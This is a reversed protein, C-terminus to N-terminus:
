VEKVGVKGVYALHGGLWGGILLLVVGVISLGYGISSTGDQQRVFFDIAFLVTVALNVLMHKTATAKVEPPLPATFYDVFGFLAALLAGVIGFGILAESFGVWMPAHTVLYIIDSVLSSIFLGVPFAVLVPHIPHGAFTAKGQM